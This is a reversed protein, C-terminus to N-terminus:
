SKLGSLKRDHALKGRRKNRGIGEQEDCQCELQRLEEIRLSVPIPATIQRGCILRCLKRKLYVLNPDSELESVTIKLFDELCQLIERWLSEALKESKDDPIQKTIQSLRPRLAAKQNPTM